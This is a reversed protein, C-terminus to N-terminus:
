TGDLRGACSLFALANAVPVNDELDYAPGLILGGSAGLTEIRLRVEREIAEPAAFPWMAASGVTGWLTLSSGFRKRLDAPDMCDPQVPNLINVGIDILDRVVPAIVGDSHYAVYIDPDAGRAADIMRALRPRLWRRWMEPSILMSTPTGIDDGLVVIEVGAAVLQMVNSCAADTIRDLLAEAFAPRCQLDELLNDLGRLRYATEFLVGGLLPIQGAVAFGRSQHSRVTERLRCVDEKSKVVPFHHAEVDEIRGAAILPNRRDVHQPHYGWLRYGAVQRKDGVKPADPPQPPPDASPVFWVTKLDVGFHVDPDEIGMRRFHEHFGTLDIHVPARDAPEGRLAALVRRRSSM